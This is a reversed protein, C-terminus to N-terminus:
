GHGDDLAIHYRTLADGRKPRTSKRWQKRVAAFARGTLELPLMQVVWRALRTRGLAFVTAIWLGVLRSKRGVIAQYGYRPVPKGTWRRLAMRSWVATKKNYLGHSHMEIADARDTPQLDIVGAERCRDLVECGVATRGLVLSFGEHRDEYRPAWADGGSIDALENTLDVCLLSREVSYFLTMYNAYFKELELTRGDELTIRLKGPWAGARYEVRVVESLDTVSHKRLFAAVSTFHHKVGCFSGILLEINQVSPHGIEQLKRISHIQSPLGVFAVPGDIRETERLITNVPALSYKSQQSLRLTDWDTAIVPRPQLPWAPDDILCAAGEIMGSELLYKLIATIVGGSAAKARIEADHAAGVLIQPAHGLLYDEPSSGFIRDNMRPFDIGGGPCGHLCPASCGVCPSTDQVTPLCEGLPDRFTVIEAPCVGACTGCRTCLGVDIVTRELAEFGRFQETLPVDTGIRGVPVDSRRPPETAQTPAVDGMIWWRRSM